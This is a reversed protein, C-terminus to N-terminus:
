VKLAFVTIVDGTVLGSNEKDVIARLAWNSGGNDPILTVLPRAGASASVGEIYLAVLDYTAVARTPSLTIVNDQRGGAVFNWSVGNTHTVKDVKDWSVSAAALKAKTVALDAIKATTVGTTGTTYSELKATTVTGDVLKDTGVISNNIIKTGSVNLIDADVISGFYDIIAQFSDHIPKPKRPQGAVIQSILPLVPPM